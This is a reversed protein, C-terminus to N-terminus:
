IDFHHKLLAAHHARRASVQIRLLAFYIHWARNIRQAREYRVRDIHRAMMYLAIVAFSVLLMMATETM